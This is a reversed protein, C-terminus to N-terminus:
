TGLSSMELHSEYTDATNLDGATEMKRAGVWVSTMHAPTPAREKRGIGGAGLRDILGEAVRLANAAITLGPNTGGSSPFFSADVVYLNDVEHARNSADLVSSRPDTGSRCTGCVHALRRNNEAQKILQGGWPRFLERLRRRFRNVRKQDSAALTYRIRWPVRESAGPEVHNEHYPLDELVSAMILKTNIQKKLVRRLLPAGLRVGRALWPHRAHLEDELERVMMEAPPLAGFSQVSGFKEGEGFYWDSFGLEKTSGQTENVPGSPSRLAYLDVFHRMLNRGVQGSGNALGQPRRPSHSRLLICPTALAGAALVIVNARLTVKQGKWRCHVETARSGDSDMRRVSCEDMLRAGHLRLAPEVCTQWADRRSSRQDLVGQQDAQDWGQKLALPLRYPSLGRAELHRWLERNAPHRCNEADFELNTGRLRRVSGTRPDLGGSVGFLCEAKEYFPELQAYSFPWAEPLTSTGPDSFNERPTFDRPHFRELVAGYLATSGGAGSGIFPVFTETKQASCDEVSDACRGAAELLLRHREAPASHDPFRQEPYDGQFARSTRARGKEVFLVRLGARACAHGTVAGGMGTGVVMVDFLMKRPDESESRNM